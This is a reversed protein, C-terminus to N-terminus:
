SIINCSTNGINYTFFQIDFDGYEGDINGGKKNGLRIHGVRNSKGRKM